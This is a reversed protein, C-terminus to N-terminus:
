TLSHRINLTPLHLCPVLGIWLPQTKTDIINNEGELYLSATFCWWWCGAKPNIWVPLVRHLKTAELKAWPLIGQWKLGGPPLCPSHALLLGGRQLHPTASLPLLALTLSAGLLWCPILFSKIQARTGVSNDTPDGRQSETVWDTM